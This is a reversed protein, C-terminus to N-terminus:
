KIKHGDTFRQWSVYWEGLFSQNSLFVVALRLLDSPLSVPAVLPEEVRFVGQIGDSGLIVFHLIFVELVDDRRHRELDSFHSVVLSKDM